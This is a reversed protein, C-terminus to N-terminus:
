SANRFVGYMLGIPIPFTMKGLAAPLPPLSLRYTQSLRFAVHNLSVAYPMGGIAVRRFGSRGLLRALTDPSFYWLHELLISNWREGFLRASPSAIDPLTVFLLGDPRLLAKLADIYEPLDPLHEFVDWATVVDFGGSPLAGDCVLTRLDGCLIDTSKSSAGDAAIEVGMRQWGDMAALFGGDGCGFDLLRGRPAHKAVLAALRRFRLASSGDCLGRPISAYISAYEEATFQPDTFTFDCQPCRVIRGHVVAQRGSLFYQAAKEASGAFTPGYLETSSQHGCVMCADLRRM